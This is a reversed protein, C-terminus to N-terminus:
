LVGWKEEDIFLDRRGGEKWSKRKKKEELRAKTPSEDEVFVFFFYWFVGFSVLGLGNGLQELSKRLRLLPPVEPLERQAM